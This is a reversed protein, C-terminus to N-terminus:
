SPVEEDSETTSPVDEDSQVTELAPPPQASEGTATSAAHEAALEALSKEPEFETEDESTNLASEHTVIIPPDPPPPPPPVYDHAVDRPDDARTIRARERVHHAIMRYSSQLSSEYKADHAAEAAIVAACGHCYHGTVALNNCYTNNIGLCRLM